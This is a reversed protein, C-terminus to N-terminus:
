AQSDYGAGRVGTGPPEERSFGLAAMADGGVAWFLREEAASWRPVPARLLESRKSSTMDEVESPGQAAFSSNLRTGALFDAPGPEEGAGLFELIRACEAYPDRVLDHHKVMIVRESFSAQLELGANVYHAWTRCASEFCTAWEQDFGSALMSAVVARGDRAMVVFKANPLM